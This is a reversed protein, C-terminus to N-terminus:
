RRDLDVLAEIFTQMYQKEGISVRLCDGLEGVDAYAKILIKKEQKMRDVVTQADTKPQIFLFNGAEGKHRYGMEDLTNILYTRGENFKAILSDVM